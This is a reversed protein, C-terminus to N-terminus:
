RVEQEKEKFVDATVGKEVDLTKNIMLVKHSKSSGIYNIVKPDNVNLHAQDDGEDEDTVDKRSHNLYGVYVGTLGNRKELHEPFVETLM